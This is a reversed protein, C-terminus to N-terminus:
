AFEHFRIKAHHQIDTSLWISVRNILQVLIHSSMHHTATATTLDFNIETIILSTNTRIQDPYGLEELVLHAVGRVFGVLREETEVGHERTGVGHEAPLGDLALGEVLEELADVALVQGATSLSILEQCLIPNHAELDIDFLVRLVM